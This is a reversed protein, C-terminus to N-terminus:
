KVEKKAIFPHGPWLDAERVPKGDPMYRPPDILMDLQEQVQKAEALSLRHSHGDRLVLVSHGDKVYVFSAVIDWSWYVVNGFENTYRLVLPGVPGIHEIM